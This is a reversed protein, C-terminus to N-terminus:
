SGSLPEEPPSGDSACAAQLLDRAKGDRSKRQRMTGYGHGMRDAERRHRPGDDQGGSQAKLNLIHFPDRGVGRAQM